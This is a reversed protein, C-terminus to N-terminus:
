HGCARGEVISDGVGVGIRGEAYAAVDDKSVTDRDQWGLSDWGEDSGVAPGEAGRKDVEELGEEEAVDAFYVDDAFGCSLNLLELECADRDRVEISVFVGVEERSDEAWEEAECLLVVDVGDALRELLGPAEGEAMAIASASKQDFNQAAELGAEFLLGLDAVRVDEGGISGDADRGGTVEVAFSEVLYEAGHRRLAGELEAAMRPVVIAVEVADGSAKAGMAVDLAGGEEGLQGCYSQMWVSRLEDVIPVEVCEVDRAVGAL